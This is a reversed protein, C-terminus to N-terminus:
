IIKFFLFTKLLMSFILVSIRSHDINSDNKGNNNDTNRSDNFRDRNYSIDREIRLCESPVTLNSGFKDMIWLVVGNTWGFGEQVIYEGGGGPYGVNVAHYKEFVQGLSMSNYLVSTVLKIGFIEYGCYVSNIFRQSINLSYKYFEGFTGNDYSFLTEIFLQQVPAWVNPFDWQQGTPEISVPIGGPYNFLIEYNAKIISFLEDKDIKFFWIPALDSVYFSRKAKGMINLDYDIWKNEGKMLSNINSKRNEAKNKYFEVKMSSNDIMSYFKFLLNENQYMFVNLDIPVFSVTQIDELGGNSGDGKIWRGSFDWGSEAASAINQYLLQKKVESDFKPLSATARDELYSEPRPIWHETRYVNLTINRNGDIILEASREKMWFSYEKELLPIVRKLFEIREENSM